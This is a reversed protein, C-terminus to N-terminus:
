VAECEKLLSRKSLFYAAKQKDKDLTQALSAASAVKYRSAATQAALAAAASRL